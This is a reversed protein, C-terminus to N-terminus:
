KKGGCMSSTVKSIRDAESLNVSMNALLADAIKAADPPSLVRVYNVVHPHLVLLCRLQLYELSSALMPAMEPDLNSELDWWERGDIHFNNCCLEINTRAADDALQKQLEILRSM